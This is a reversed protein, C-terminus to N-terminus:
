APAIDMATISWVITLAAPGRGGHGDLALAHERSLAGPLCRPGTALSFSGSRSAPSSKRCQYAPPVKYQDTWLGTRETWCHVAKLEM